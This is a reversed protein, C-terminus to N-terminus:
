AGRRAGLVASYVWHRGGDHSVYQWTVVPASGSRNLQQQVYAVLGGGPGPVVATVLEGLYTEWWARGRDTTVDVVSSGYAFFTRSSAVGVYGVGEAGDAADVHVQPGAIRWHAGDTTVVPYQALGANALAVGTHANAFVRDTFISSSRVMMGPAVAGRRSTLRHATLRQPPSPVVASARAMAPHGAIRSGCGALCVAVAIGAAFQGAPWRGGVARLSGLSM